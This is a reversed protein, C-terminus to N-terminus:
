HMSVQEINLHDLEGKDTCKSCLCEKKEYNVIMSREFDDFLSSGCNVCSKYDRFFESQTITKYRANYRLQMHKGTRRFPLVKNENAKEREADARKIDELEKAFCVNCQCAPHHNLPVNEEAKDEPRDEYDDWPAGDMGYLGYANLDDERWRIQNFNRNYQSRIPQYVYQKYEELKTSIRTVEGDKYQFEYLVDPKPFYMDDWEFPMGMRMCAARIMWAESAFFIGDQDANNSDPYLEKFFMPRKGNTVMNLAQTEENWYILSAAGDIKPWAKEITEDGIALCIKESDTDYDYYSKNFKHTWATGNHVLTIPGHQFPHANKKETSGKTAWRNHGIFGIVGEANAAQKYEEEKMVDDPWTNDKVVTTKNPTIIAVGCSDIGRHIDILFMEEFVAKRIPSLKGFFGVIGCM